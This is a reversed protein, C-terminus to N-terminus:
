GHTGENHAVPPTPVGRRDSRARTLRGVVPGLLAGCVILLGGAVTAYALPRLPGAGSVGGPLEAFGSAVPLVGLRDFPWVTAEVRGSVATLPVTGPDSETMLNRSDLSDVRDDGLLFIEGDPVTAEFGVGAAGQAEEVYPEAIPEGNVTLRGGEDCCAVTDGGVGVVRKIMPSDGWLADRFVVVDGRRVESGDIRQALVRDGAMVAPSMSNTPVTYPQYLFAALVFGGLFLVCGVGVAVASLRRGLRGGHGPAGSM